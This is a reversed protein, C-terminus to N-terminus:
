QPKADLTLRVRQRAGGIYMEYDLLLQGGAPCLSNEVRKTVTELDLEGVGPIRYRSKHTAGVAYTVEAVTDGRRRMYVTQPEAETFTLETLARGEGEGSQYSLACKGDKVAFLAVYTYTTKEGSGGEDFTHSLLTVTMPYVGNQM